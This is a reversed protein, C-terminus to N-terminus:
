VAPLELVARTVTVTASYDVSVTGDAQNYAAAWPGVFRDAGAAVTVVKTPPSTGDIGRGLTVTITVPAASGNKLHVLRRGNNQIQDNNATVPAYNPALGGSTFLQAAPIDRAM